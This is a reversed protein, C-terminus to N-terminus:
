GLWPVLGYAVLTGGFYRAEMVNHPETPIGYQKLALEPLLLFALGFLLAVVGSIALYTALKM